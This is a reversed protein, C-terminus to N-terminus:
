VNIVINLLNIMNELKILLQTKDCFLKRIIIIIIIIIISSGSVSLLDEISHEVQPVVFISVYLSYSVFLFIYETIGAQVLLHTINIRWLHRVSSGQFFKHFLISQSIQYIPSPLLLPSCFLFIYGDHFSVLDCYVIILFLAHFM